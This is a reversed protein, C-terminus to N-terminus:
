EICRCIDYSQQGTGVATTMMLEPRPVYTSHSSSPSFGTRNAFKKKEGPAWYVPAPSCLSRPHRPSRIPHRARPSRPSVNRTIKLSSHAPFSVKIAKSYIHCDSDQRGAGLASDHPAFRLISTCKPTLNDISNSNQTKPKSIICIIVQFSTLTQTRIPEYTVM